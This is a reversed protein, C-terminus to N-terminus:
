PPIKGDKGTHSLVASTPALGRHPSSVPRAEAVAQARIGPAERREWWPLAARCASPGRAPHCGRHTVQCPEQPISPPPCDRDFTTGSGWPQPQKLTGAGGGFAFRRGELGAAGGEGQSQPRLQPARGPRRGGRRGQSCDTPAHSLACAGTHAGLSRWCSHWDRGRKRSRHPRQM